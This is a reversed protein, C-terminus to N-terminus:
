LLLFSLDLLALETLNGADLVNQAFRNGAAINRFYLNKLNKLGEFSSSTMSFSFPVLYINNSLDLTELNNLKGFSGKEIFELVNYSLDLFTLNFLGEFSTSHLESIFNKKLSLESTNVPINNPVKYFDRGSCDVTTDICSCKTPCGLINRILATFLVTRIIVRTNQITRYTYSSM